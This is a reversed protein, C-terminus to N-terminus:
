ELIEESYIGWRPGLDRVMRYRRKGAVEEDSFRILVTAHCENEAACVVSIKNWEEPRATEGDANQLFEYFQEALPGGGNHYFLLGGYQGRSWMRLARQFDWRASDEIEWEPREDALALCPASGTSIAFILAFATGTPKM